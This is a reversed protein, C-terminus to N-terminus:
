EKLFKKFTILNQKIPLTVAEGAIYYRFAISTANHMKEIITQPIVYQFQVVKYESLTYDKVVTVKTSDAKLITETDKNLSSKLESQINSVTIKYFEDANIIIYIESEIPDLKNKLKLDDFVKITTNHVKDVEKIYKRNCSFLSSQNSISYYFYDTYKTRTVKKVLDYETKLQPVSCRIMLFLSLLLVM